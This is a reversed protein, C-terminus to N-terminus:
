EAAEAFSDTRVDGARRFALAGDELRGYRIALMDQFYNQYARWPPKTGQRPMRDIARQIYGSSFDLLPAPEIDKPPEPVCYDCGERAMHNLLRCVRECTLDIKLTWSANTYGFCIALNPLGSLMMGRYAFHEAANWVQGDVTLEIGGMLLIDLGTAPIIIDAEVTEGSSLRVGEPVFREITDTRIDAKGGKLAAFFDGDPALCFRQNWPDYDPTFHRDVDFDEGLEGRIYTKIQKRIYGPWRQAMEYFLISLAINKTRSIAYASKEPLIKRLTDAIVDRSPRGAIYTPSRQIMTVHAAEEAMAPVLTVATAGSGIVAVRKGAYAQDERWKQPHIIEGAFDSAGEFEPEHGRDYRYYGSCMVLFKATLTVPGSATEARVTWHAAGTNWAASVVRHGFRIKEMIDHREATDRVYHRISPGDAFVKGDTWPRFAFGFTYMDSDSRIGPYRFLDWTGGVAERAELIAYRQDPARKQLHYGAAIGSIGAGVVLVDLDTETM